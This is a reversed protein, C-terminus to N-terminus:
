VSAHHNMMHNPFRVQHNQPSITSNLANGLSQRKEITLANMCAQFISPITQVHRLIIVMRQDVVSNVEISSKVFANAFLKIVNPVIFNNQEIIVSNNSEILDCLYGYIYSTEETDEHIPFWSFLIQHLANVTNETAINNEPAHRTDPSSILAFLHPLAETCTRAYISGGNMGIVGFVYAAAQHIEFTSDALSEAM